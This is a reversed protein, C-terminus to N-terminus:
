RRDDRGRGNNRQADRQRNRDSSHNHDVAGRDGDWYGGIFRSGDHYPENWYAGAYPPRTWYGAHWQYKSGVPYWYGDIWTYDPGPQPAIRSPRWAPPQGINIGFSVQAHAPSAPVLLLTSIALAKLLTKM